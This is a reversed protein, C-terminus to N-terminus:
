DLAIGAFPTCRMIRVESALNNNPIWFQDDSEVGEKHEINLRGSARNRDNPNEARCDLIVNDGAECPRAAVDGPDCCIGRQILPVLPNLQQLLRSPAHTNTFRTSTM